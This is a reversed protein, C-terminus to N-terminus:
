PKGTPTRMTAAVTVMGRALRPCQGMCALCWATHRGTEAPGELTGGQESRLRGLQVPPRWDVNWKIGAPDAAGTWRSTGTTDWLPPTERSVLRCYSSQGSYIRRGYSDRM